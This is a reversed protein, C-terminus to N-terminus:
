EKCWLVVLLHELTNYQQRAHTLVFLYPQCNYLNGLYHRICCTLTIGPFIYCAFWSKQKFLMFFLACECVPKSNREFNLPIVDHEHLLLALLFYYLFCRLTTNSTHLVILTFECTLFERICNSFDLYICFLTPTATHMYGYSRCSWIVFHNIIHGPPHLKGADYKHQHFVIWIIL